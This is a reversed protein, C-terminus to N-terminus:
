VHYWFYFGYSFLNIFQVGDFNFDSTRHFVSNLSYFCLTCVPLFYKCIVNDSLPSTDLIFLLSEFSMMLFCVVWNIICLIDSCIGCWLFYAYSFPYHAIPIQLSFGYCTLLIILINIISLVFTSWHLSCPHRTWWQNFHLQPFSSQLVPHKGIFNFM